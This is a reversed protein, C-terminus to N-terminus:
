ANNNEESLNDIINAVDETMNETDINGMVYNLKSVISNVATHLNEIDLNSDGELEDPPDFKITAM